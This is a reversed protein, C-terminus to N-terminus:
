ASRGLAENYARNFKDIATNFESRSRQVPESEHRLDTQGNLPKSLFDALFIGLSAPSKYSPRIISSDEQNFGYAKMFQNPWLFERIKSAVQFDYGKDTGLYLCEVVSNVLATFEQSFYSKKLHDTVDEFTLLLMTIEKAVVDIQVYKLNRTCHNKVLSEAFCYTKRILLLAQLELDLELGSALLARFDNITM